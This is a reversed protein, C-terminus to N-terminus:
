QLQLNLHNLFFLSLQFLHLSLLIFFIGPSKILLFCDFLDRRKSTSPALLHKGIVADEYNLPASVLETHSAHVLVEFVFQGLLLGSVDRTWPALLDNPLVLYEKDKVLLILLKEM